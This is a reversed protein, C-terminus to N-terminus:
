VAQHMVFGLRAAALSWPKETLLLKQHQSIDSGCPKIYVPSSHFSFGAYLTKTHHQTVKHQWFPKLAGFANIRCTEPVRGSPHFVM